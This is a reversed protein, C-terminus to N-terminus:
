QSSVGGVPWGDLGITPRTSRGQMAAAEAETKTAHCPACICQLNDSADTGGKHKPIIHDVATMPTVMGQAQCPQCLAGDRNIIIKRLKDWTTGYGREHRSGPRGQWSTM